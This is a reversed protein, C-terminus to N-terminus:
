AQETASMATVNDLVPPRDSGLDNPKELAEIAKVADGRNAKLAAIAEDKSFGADIIMRIVSPNFEGTPDKPPSPPASDGEAEGYVLTRSGESKGLLSAFTKPQESPM